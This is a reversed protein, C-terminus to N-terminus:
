YKQNILIIKIIIKRMGGVKKPLSPAKKIFTIKPPEVVATPLQLQMLMVPCNRGDAIVVTTTKPSIMVVVTAIIIRPTSVFLVKTLRNLVVLRWIM